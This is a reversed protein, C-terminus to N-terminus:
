YVHLNYTPPGDGVITDETSPKSFHPRQPLSKVEQYGLRRTRIYKGNTGDQPSQRSSVSSELLSPAAFPDSMPPSQNIQEMMANVLKYTPNTRTFTTHVTEKEILATRSTSPPLPPPLQLSLKQIYEKTYQMPSYSLVHFVLVVLVVICFVTM